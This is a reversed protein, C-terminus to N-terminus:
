SALALTTVGPVELSHRRAQESERGGFMSTRREGTCGGSSVLYSNRQRPAHSSTAAFFVFFGVRDSRKLSGGRPIYQVSCKQFFPHSLLASSRPKGCGLGTNMPVHKSESGSLM